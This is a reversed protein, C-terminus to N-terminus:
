KQFASIFAVVDKLGVDAAARRERGAVADLVLVLVDEGANLPGAPTV